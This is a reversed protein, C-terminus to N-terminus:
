FVQSVPDYDDITMADVRALYAWRAETVAVLPTIDVDASKRSWAITDGVRRTKGGSVAADLQPSPVQRLTAQRVADIMQGCAAAMDVATLVALDGCQPPHSDDGGKAKTPPRDEPRVMGAQRLDEKLSAYTGRAVGVAVPNLAAKLEVLRPVIWDTGARYDLLQVHGLGDDRPGFLGIAAWGRDPAIDVALAVDGARRSSQDALDRWRELDIVGGTINERWIGLRERRFDEDSMAALEGLVTEETIRVGYAPNAQRWAERDDSHANDPASWELYALRPSAGIRGAKCIRQLVASHDKPASSTYWVQHNPRASLAPLLAALDEDTLDYAEDLFLTEASLGRGSAGAARALFLLRCGNLLEIEGTGFTTRHPRGKVRRRLHDYNEVLSRMMRFGELATSLRHATWVILPERFVYLGGLARASLLATKGNQRPEVIAVQDAAWSGDDSEAVGYELALAQADDLHLDVSAALGIVDEVATAMVPPGTLFRPAAPAEVSLSNTM